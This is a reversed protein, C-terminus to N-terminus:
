AEEVALGERALRISLLEGDLWEMALYPQGDPASGHGVYRVVSPHRLSALVTAERLLRVAADDTSFRLVKIAVPQGSARDIGRYVTGMGGAGAVREIEFREGLVDGPRM